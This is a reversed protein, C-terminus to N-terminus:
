LKGATARSKPPHLLLHSKQIQVYKLFNYMYYYYKRLTHEVKVLKIAAESSGCTKKPTLSRSPSNFKAKNVQM